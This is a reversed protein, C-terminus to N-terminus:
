AMSVIRMSLDVAKVDKTLTGVSIRDVGTKAIERVNELTIGGSAELQARGANLKVAQEMAPVTFNDLLVLKAGNALAQELQKMTEVEIQIPIDSKVCNAATLVQQIGGAIAIHNEKILIGDYLGIRHNVGGGSKVAYKLGLRLGPLTKRTDLIAARTGAVANVYERTKTAVASLTQLFNLATREGTLLARASGRLDCIVTNAPVMDGDHANWTVAIRRDLQRFVQDFWAAGCLVCEERVVIRAHATFREPVLAATQDGSGVDEALAQTVSREIDSRL